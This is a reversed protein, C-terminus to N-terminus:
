GSPACAEEPPAYLPQALPPCIILWDDRDFDCESYWVPDEHPLPVERFMESLEIEKESALPPPVNVNKAITYLTHVDQVLSVIERAVRWSQYVIM